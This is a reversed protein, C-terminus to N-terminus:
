TNSHKLQVQKRVEKNKKKSKSNLFLTAIFILCIGLSNQLTLKEGFLLIGFVTAALPEVFSIISAKSAKMRSLGMSYLLYPILTSILGIGLAFILTIPSSILKDVYQIPHCLPLLFLSAFLFSYFIMTNAKYKKLIMSGFISYLAFFFGSLIGTFIGGASFKVTSGIIGTTLVSGIISIILAIITKKTIKEKFILASLIVVFCPSTYLLIAAVSMTTEQITYFYFLYFLAISIIGTGLFLPLDKLKIKFYERNIVLNIITIGVLTVFSRSFAIQLVSLGLEGLARSFVGVFGWCIAAIIILIEPRINDTKIKNM